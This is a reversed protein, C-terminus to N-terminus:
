RLRTEAVNGQRPQTAAYGDLEHWAKPGVIGDPVLDHARQFARVRAETKSGFQSDIKIQEGTEATQQWGNIKSQMSGVLPGTMGRRLTPRAAQNPGKNDEIAPILSPQPASGNLIAAVGARFAHMDFVPDFKRNIKRNRAWEKHGVCFEAGRGIHKLIAAVGQRYAKMQAAPYEENGTNEAEIGIFNTNGTAIGQWDGSGAHQCFGAAVVYYTGDRGLGLQALPGRLDSRGEILVRLSPMNLTKNKTGTHHCIVGYIPGINGLGRNEWGPEVAVKLGAARLVEPLWLLSYSM